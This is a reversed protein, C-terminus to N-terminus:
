VDVEAAVAGDKPVEVNRTVDSERQMLIVALEVGDPGDVHGGSGRQDEVIEAGVVLIDCEVAAAAISLEDEAVAVVGDVGAGAIVRNRNAVAVVGDVSTVAVVVDFDAGAGVRNIEASAVVPQVKVAGGSNGVEGITTIADVGE